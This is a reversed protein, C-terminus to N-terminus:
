SVAEAFRNVVRERMGYVLSFLAPVLILTFMTSIFLGGIVVSGIGRYLESGAGPFLVLPMMGLISTLTSMFIPRIRTQVADRISERLPHGERILNLSQHVILIANNVVTGILIFFGLMTLTDMPQAVIAANVLALGALGGVAALPVSIMIVLPYLFSEFLASMLLYSIAVALLLRWKLSEATVKLKDATGALNINYLDGISGDAVQPAIVQDQIMQIATELPLSKDPVVNIVVSRKRELHNIQQPGSGAEVEAVSGLLVPEGNFMGVPLNKLSQTVPFQSQDGELVLDIEEGNHTYDDVKRGDVITDVVLGIDRTSLGVRAALARDPTISIEPNGLDLGPIPRMQTGQPMVGMLMGFNKGALGMLQELDPGTIEVDIARGEGIARGFLSSQTVIAIMGPINSLSKQMIGIVESIKGPDEAVAGMFVSQGRAVFFFNAFHPEKQSETPKENYIPFHPSLSTELEKGIAQLEDLNYGAPPILIGFALNRNGQPLYEAPPVIALAIMISLVPLGISVLVRSRISGCIRYVLNSVFASFGGALQNLKDSSRDSVIHKMRATMAPIVTLSVLMSLAVSASIAIAIDRFLQGVEEEMFLVPVFVAMTTLTSALVAGWVEGAGFSAAKRGPMGNERHRFINELVVISNDVVMGIAFSM